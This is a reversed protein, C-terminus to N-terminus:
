KLSDKLYKYSGVDITYQTLSDGTRRVPTKPDTSTELRANLLEVLIPNLIVVTYPEKGDGKCDVIVQKLAPEIKERLALRHKAATARMLSRAASPTINFLRAVEDAVPPETPYATLMLRVLRRERVDAASALTAVGAVMDLFELIAAPAFRAIEKELDAPKCRLADCLLPLLADPIEVESSFKLKAM